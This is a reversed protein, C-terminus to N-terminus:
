NWLNVVKEVWAAKYFALTALGAGAMDIGVDVMSPHRGSVFSQHFEDSMAFVYVCAISILLQRWGKQRFGRAYSMSLLAYGLMHGGKKVLTDLIGYNPINKSPTASAIFIVAMIFVAPAWSRLIIFFKRM